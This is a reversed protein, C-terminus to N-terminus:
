GDQVDDDLQAELREIRCERKQIEVVLFDILKTQQQLNGVAVRQGAEVESWNVVDAVFEDLSVGFTSRVHRDAVRGIAARNADELPEDVVGADYYSRYWERLQEHWEDNDLGVYSRANEPDDFLEPAVESWWWDDVEHDAVADILGLLQERRHSQDYPVSIDSDTVSFARNLEAAHNAEIQTLVDVFAQGIPTESPTIEIAKAGVVDKARDLYGM